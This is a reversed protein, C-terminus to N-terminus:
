ARCVRRTGVPPSYPEWFDTPSGVLEQRILLDGEQQVPLAWLRTDGLPVAERNSTDVEFIHPRQNDEDPGTCVAAEINPLWTTGCRSLFTTFNETLPDHELGTLHLFRLQAGLGDALANLLPQYTHPDGLWERVVLRKLNQNQALIQSIHAAWYEATGMGGTSIELSTLTGRSFVTRFCQVVGPISTDIQVCDLALGVLNPMHVLAHFITPHDNRIGFHTLKGGYRSLVPSFDHVDTVALFLKRLSPAHILLHRLNDPTFNVEVWTRQSGGGICFAELTPPLKSILESWEVPPETQRIRAWISEFSLSTVRSFDASGSLRSVLDESFNIFTVVRARSIIRLAPPVRLTTGMNYIAVGRLADGFGFCNLNEAHTAVLDLILVVHNNGDDYNSTFEGGMGVKPLKITHVSELHLAQFLLVVDETFDCAELNVERVSVLIRNARDRRFTTTECSDDTNAADRAAHVLVLGLLRMHENSQPRLSSFIRPSVYPEITTCTLRLSRLTRPCVVDLTIKQQIETPLSLFPFSSTSAATSPLHETM